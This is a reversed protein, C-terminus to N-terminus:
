PCDMRGFSMTIDGLASSGFNVAHHALDKGDVDGDTDYDGLCPPLFEDAGMDVVVTGNMDGDIIRLDGDVDVDPLGSIAYEGADICPSGALLHYDNDATTAPNGDPGDWDVFQPNVSLDEAGPTLNVYNDDVGAGPPNDYVDNRIFLPERTNIVQQYIGSSNFAVVNNALVIREELIDLAIGGGGGAAFLSTATNGAITNNLILVDDLDDGPPTAHVLCYIGGGTGGITGAQVAHNNVIFNNLITGNFCGPLCIGAGSFAMNDAIRNGDISFNRCLNLAVAGWTAGQFMAFFDYMTNAEIRNGSIRPESLTCFIAGGYVARNTLIANNLIWPWSQNCYIGGGQGSRYLNENEMITNSTITPHAVFCGIGAGEAFPLLAAYPSGISNWRITNNALIPGCTRIFLGGGRGGTRNSADPLNFPDPQGVYVGGHQVTMSDLRSIHYGAMTFSVVPPIGQGDIIAPHAPVDRASRETEDGAFGGYLSVFAPITIREFYTGTKVWVEGGTAAAAQIGGTLTQKADEWSEGTNSDEGDPTVYVVPTPMTWLTGDSEDAGMDVSTGGDSRPQGDIDTWDAGILDLSGAARCPSDPQVHFDGIATNAFAPDASINGNIGTADNIGCYNTDIGQLANGFVNNTGLTVTNTGITWQEMGWANFTVINNHIQAAANAWHIGAGSNAAVTNNVVIASGGNSDALAMGGGKLAGNAAIVNNILTPASICGYCRTGDEYYSSAFVGGGGYNVASGGDLINAANALIFNNAIIPLSNRWCCIGGGNQSAQNRAIVNNRIEPSSGVIGIGGGDGASEYALNDVIRNEVILPFEAEGGPLPNFFWISIGAGIGYTLNGTVTNNAIIPASGVMQIGGGLDEPNLPDRNGGTIIFGDIRTMRSAGNTIRIVTGNDTGHLVTRNTQWDRQEHLTESGDFGGYLAIDVASEGVKKNAIRENYIGAAVWIEDESEGADIAAQVTKKALTWSSGDNTNNGSPKVRIVDAGAPCDMFLLVITFISLCGIRCTKRNM